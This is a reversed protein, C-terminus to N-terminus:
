SFITQLSLAYRVSQGAPVTIEPCGYLSNQRLPRQISATDEILIKVRAPFQTPNALLVGSLRENTLVPTAIVHDYVHIEGTDRRIHVGPIEMRTLMLSVECWCSGYFVGGPNNDWDGTNVRENMWGSPLPCGDPAIVPRDERSLYQTLNHALEKLLQSYIAKGTARHLKLLADGSLTCIAPAGHGNQSNAFVAGASKMGLKGFFSSPPFHFDYSMQWTASQAAAKEAAALWRSDRTEEWLVVYSELLGAASESDPCQLIEGPGGTTIGRDTFEQEFYGAIEEAVQLYSPEGFWRAALALGAPAIGSSPTGGAIIAGTNIDVFQGLQGNTKWLKVFADACARTGSEWTGPLRWTSDQKRLLDFQKILFYLADASKRLLHYHNRDPHPRAQPTWQNEDFGDGSWVGKHYVGHFFGSAGQGGHRFVFDITQRARSKSLESGEHLIPLTNMLGGVWGIQLDQHRNERLGVAYYGEDNNWNDRNHKEEQIDWAASFPLRHDLSPQGVLTYRENLVQDFLQPISECPSILTEVVVELKGGADLFAGRDESPTQTRCMTYRFPLRVGPSSVRLRALTRDDNETFDYGSERGGSFPQTAILVSHLSDPDFIGITPVAVAGALMSFQSPGPEINLRLVDTIVPPTAPGLNYPQQFIPPYQMPEVRFRNGAYIIAPFLLYHESSWEPFVFELSLAVNEGRGALLEVGVTHRVRGTGSPTQLTALRWEGGAFSFTDCDARMPLRKEEAVCSADFRRLIACVSFPLSTPPM